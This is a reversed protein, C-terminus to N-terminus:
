ILQEHKDLYTMKEQLVNHMANDHIRSISLVAFFFKLAVFWKVIVYTYISLKYYCIICKFDSITTLLM